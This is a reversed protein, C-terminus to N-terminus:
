TSQQILNIQKAIFFHRTRCKFHVWHRKVFSLSLISTSNYISEVRQWIAYSKYLILVFLLKLILMCNQKLPSQTRLWAMWSAKHAIIHWFLLLFFSLVHLMWGQQDTLVSCNLITHVSIRPASKSFMFYTSTATSWDQGVM